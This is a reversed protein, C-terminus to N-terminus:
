RIAGILPAEREFTLKFDDPLYAWHTFTVGFDGDCEEEGDAEVMSHPKVLFLSGGSGDEYLAIIRRGPKPEKEAMKHWKM